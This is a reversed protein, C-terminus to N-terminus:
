IPIDGRVADCVATECGSKDNRKEDSYKKLFFMREIIKPYVNEILESSGEM